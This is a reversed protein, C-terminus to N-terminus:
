RTPCLAQEILQRRSSPEISTLFQSALVRYDHKALVYRRGREAMESREAQSLAMLTRVADAIDEPDEPRVTLGCASEAVLDNGADSAQIIPKAAMMYDILKNPGIGFRYIPSRQWSILLLDMYALLAPVADKAVPPLFEVNHLALNLALRRLREKEPGQGVLIFTVPADRLVHAAQVVPDLANAIGHAGAYCVLLRGNARAKDLVARHSVELDAPNVRWSEADIGNPIYIFKGKALGHARMHSEAKPLMSVVCDAHRYAFSEAWQMAAIFPHAPSMGGLEVPSLPWLDHVEFVFQAGCKRAISRAPISDLPYTSSAIVVDPAVDRVILRSHRFLEAVFTAINAARRVGNGSYAPTALWLYRIGDLDEWTMSGLCRPQRTRVHSFSAAVITVQHGLRVWEHAFYYPRFEMGHWPSGAYHNILLINV